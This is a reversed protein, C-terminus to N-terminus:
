ELLYKEQDSLAASYILLNLACTEDLSRIPKLESRSQSSPLAGEVSAQGQQARKPQTIKQIAEFEREALLVRGTAIWFEALGIRPEISNADLAIAKDFSRKALAYKRQKRYVRGLRSHGLLFRPKLAIAQELYAAAESLNLQKEYVEALMLYAVISQDNMKLTKRFCEIALDERQQIFNLQGAGLWVSALQPDLEIASQLHKEAKAFVGISTYGGATRLPGQVVLPDLRIIEHSHQIAEQYRQQLLLINTIAIRPYLAKPYDEIVGRLEGLAEDFRMVKSLAYSFSLREYRGNGVEKLSPWFRASKTLLANWEPM